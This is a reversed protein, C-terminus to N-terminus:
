FILRNNKQMINYQKFLVNPRCLLTERVSKGCFAGIALIEERSISAKKEQRRRIEQLGLDVEGSEEQTKLGDLVALMASYRLAALDLASKIGELDSESLMEHSDYGYYRRVLEGQESLVVLTNVLVKIGDDTNLMIADCLEETPCFENLQLMAECTFCLYFEKAQLGEDTKETIQIPITKM